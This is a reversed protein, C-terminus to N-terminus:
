QVREESSRSRRALSLRFCYRKDPSTCGEDGINWQTEGNKVVRQLPHRTWSDFGIQKNMMMSAVNDTMVYAYIREVGAERFLWDVLTKGALVMLRPHGLRDGRMANDLLVDENTLDKFGFHGVCQGEVYIMFLMQGPTKFLINRMWNRTRDPTAVFHTLFNGMNQNRWDTLKHVVDDQELHAMTLPRMVALEVGEEDRIALALSQKGAIVDDIKAQIPNKV